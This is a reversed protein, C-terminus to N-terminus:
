KTKFKAYNAKTGLFALRDRYKIPIRRTWNRNCDPLEKQVIEIAELISGVEYLEGDLVVVSAKSNPNISYTRNSGYFPNNKGAIRTSRAQRNEESISCLGTEWAHVVNKSPTVWELNAIDNNTKDGDIHNVQLDTAEYTNLFMTAVMRHVSLTKSGVRTHMYGSDALYGYNVRTENKFEKLVSGDEGVYTRCRSSTEYLRYRLENYIMEQEPDIDRETFSKLNRKVVDIVATADEPNNVVDLSDMDLVILNKNAFKEMIFADYDKWIEYYYATLEESTEYDRSRKNIRKMMNEFSIKLHVILEPTREPLSDVEELMNDLLGVYLGFELESIRGLDTNKRAFYYDEEIHRDLISDRNRVAEKMSKFRTDLFYLQLLFPIRRKALEEETLTYFLPLIPNDDVSEYYAKSGFEESLLKTISSKGAGITGTISIM